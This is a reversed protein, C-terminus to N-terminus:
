LSRGALLCLGPIKACEMADYQNCVLSIRLVYEICSVLLNGDALVATSTAWRHGLYPHRFKNSNLELTRHMRCLLQKQAKGSCPPTHHQSVWFSYVQTPKEGAVAVPWAQGAPKSSWWEVEKLSTHLCASQCTKLSNWLSHIQLSDNCWACPSNDDWWSVLHRGHQSTTM